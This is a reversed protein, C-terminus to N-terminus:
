PNSREQSSLIVEEFFTPYSKQTCESGPIVVAENTLLAAAAASMAIRHDGCVNVTGGHLKKGGCISLGDPTEAIDGGVTRLFATTSAIRDSEKLRLREAGTIRTTGEAATAVVALIPVLDPIQRADIELGHLPAPSVTVSDGDVTVHAGFRELLGLIESDGQGSPLALGTVTVPHPGIAGMALPFAAGSFDGEVTLIGPSTLPAAERGPVRYACGSAKQPTAGFDSLAAVTMDIYPASEVKGTLTLTSPADLLSLAFLLGSIYQSSVNAAIAYDGAGIRGRTVLEAGNETLTMGHQRLATALPELPREPLRGRRLFTADAGIAGCVPLLFRLTSGSEGCDLVANKQVRDPSVPIVHLGGEVPRVAAGLATLCRATADIDECSTRLLLTTERDAFAAAILARHAASKSTPAAVTRAYAPQKLTVTM